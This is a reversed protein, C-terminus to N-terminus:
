LIALGKELREGCVRMFEPTPTEKTWYDNAYEVLKARLRPDALWTHKLPSGLYVLQPTKAADDPHHRALRYYPGHPNSKEKCMLCRPNGCGTWQESMVWMTKKNVVLCFM